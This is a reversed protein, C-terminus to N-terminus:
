QAHFSVCTRSRGTAPWMDKIAEPFFRTANELYSLMLRRWFTHNRAFDFRYKFAKTLPDDPDARRRKELLLLM